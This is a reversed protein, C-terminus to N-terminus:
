IILLFYTSHPQFQGPVVHITQSTVMSHGAPLTIHNQVECLVTMGNHVISPIFQFTRKVVQLNSLIKTKDSFCWGTFQDFYTLSM